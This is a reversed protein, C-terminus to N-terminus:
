LRDSIRLVVCYDRRCCKGAHGVFQIQVDQKWLFSTKQLEQVLILKTSFNEIFSFPLLYM